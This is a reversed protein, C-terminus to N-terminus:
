SKQRFEVLSIQNIPFYVSKVNLGSVSENFGDSFLFYVQLIENQTAGAVIFDDIFAVVRTLWTLMSDMKQQFIAPKLGFMFRKFRFLGKNTNINLLEKFEKKLNWKFYLVLFILRELAFKATADQSFINQCQFHSSIHIWIIMWVPRTFLVYGSTDM